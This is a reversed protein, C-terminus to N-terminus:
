NPILIQDGKSTLSHYAGTHGQALLSHHNGKEIVQGKDLVAILDCNQITSLRHAVVVTTRGIMMHELADQVLKESQSDLASTAEDLLLVTANKLIARALAIRQKQGGSLQVGREGCWTDYGDNLGAIFDHANAAKAAEIIEFEVINDDVGYIINERITGAFLTPEQSVLAIHRRLSKLNYSRIDRGDIKVIGKSPDYFREILSIITSKGSGSQGVLAISKGAEINISFGKFIMVDPRAPYAFHVDQLEIHGTIKEAKYGESDDPQIRTYRELIAFVLRVADSGRALDTTISGATAYWFDSAWTCSTLSQSLALGVGYYGSEEVSETIPGEQAKGLMKLINDQSSFATVTRLNSVAEGALKTSEEQAKMAKKSMNKPLVKRSYFCVIILPHVAIVVFALRWAIVLGMTFAIAVASVTQVIVSMHDGVLSRGPQQHGAAIAFLVNDEALKNEKLEKIEAVLSKTSLNKSDQQKLYFSRHDLSKYRNEAYIEAWVKNFDSRCRTWEDQKQKLRTLIVPLALAPNKRLIDMMDLGHDGYLREVCRLNLANFYDKIHFPAELNIKNENILTLFEEARKATSSVSELLM